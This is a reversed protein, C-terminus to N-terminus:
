STTFYRKWLRPYPIEHTTRTACKCIYFFPLFLHFKGCECLREMVWRAETEMQGALLFTSTETPEFVKEKQPRKLWMKSGKHFHTTVSLNIIINHYPQINHSGFTTLNEIYLRSSSDAISITYLLSVHHTYCNKTTFWDLHRTFGFPMTKVQLIWTAIKYELFLMKFRPGGVYSVM